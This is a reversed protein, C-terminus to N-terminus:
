RCIQMVLSSQSTTLYLSFLVLCLSGAVFDGKADRAYYDPIVYDYRSITFVKGGFEFNFDPLTDYNECDIRYFKPFEAYQTFGLALNLEVAEKDPLLAQNSGTDYIAVLDPNNFSVRSQELGDSGKIVIDGMSAEWYDSDFADIWVIESNIRAYDIGGFILEAATADENIWYCFVDDDLQGSSRFHDFLLFDSNKMAM